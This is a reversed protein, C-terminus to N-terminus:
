DYSEEMSIGEQALMTMMEQNPVTSNHLVYVNTSVEIITFDHETSYRLMEYDLLPRMMPAHLRMVIVTSTPELIAEGGERSQM